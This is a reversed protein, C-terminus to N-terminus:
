NGRVSGFTPTPPVTKSTGLVIGVTAGAIVIAAGGAVVGWFWRRKTIPERHTSVSQPEVIKPSTAELPTPNTAEPPPAVTGVTSPQAPPPLPHSEPVKAAASPLTTVPPSSAVRRDADIAQRLEAIHQNIEARKFKDAYLRLLSDYLELARTKNGALRHAQAANYLIAPDPRLEFAKEFTVAAEGFKHLAFLATAREFVAKADEDARSVAPCAVFCLFLCLLAVPRM